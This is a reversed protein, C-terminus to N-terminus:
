NSNGNGGCGGQQSQYCKGGGTYEVLEEVTKPNEPYKICTSVIFVRLDNDSTQDTDDNNDVVKVSFDAAGDGDLDLSTLSSSIDGGAALWTNWSVYSASVIPRAASLGAEACYLSTMGTRSIDSARSSSIQMSALVAAGALLAAIIILTVLM